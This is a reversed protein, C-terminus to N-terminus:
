LYWIIGEENGYIYDGEVGGDGLCFAKVTDIFFHMLVSM